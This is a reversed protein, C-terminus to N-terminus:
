DDDDDHKDDEYKDYKDHKDHDHDHDHDCHHECTSAHANKNVVMSLMLPSMYAAYRSKALFHRREERIQEKKTLEKKNEIVM